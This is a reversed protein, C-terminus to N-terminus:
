FKSRLEQTEVDGQSLVGHSVVNPLSGVLLRARLTEGSALGSVDFVIENKTFEAFRLKLRAASPAILRTLIADLPVGGLNHTIKAQTVNETVFIEVPQFGEGTIDLSNAFDQLKQFNDRVRSDAIDALDLSLM